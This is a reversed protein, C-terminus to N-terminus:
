TTEVMCAPAPAPATINLCQHLAEATMSADADCCEVCPSGALTVFRFDGDGAALLPLTIVAEFSQSSKVRLDRGDLFTFDFAFHVMRAREHGEYTVTPYCRCDFQAMEALERIWLPIWLKLQHYKKGPELNACWALTDAFVSNSSRSGIDALYQLPEEGLTDRVNITLFLTFNHGRQRVFLDEIAKVRV